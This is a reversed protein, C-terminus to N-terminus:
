KTIAFPRQAELIPSLIIGNTNGNSLYNLGRQVADVIQYDNFSRPGYETGNTVGGACTIEATPLPFVDRKITDAISVATIPNATDHKLPVGVVYSMAVFSLLSSTFHMILDTLASLLVPYAELFLLPQVKQVLRAILVERSSITTRSHRSWLAYDGRQRSAKSMM